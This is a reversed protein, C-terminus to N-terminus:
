HFWLCAELDSEQSPNSTTSTKLYKYELILLRNMNLVYPSSLM